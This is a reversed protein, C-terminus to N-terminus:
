FGVGEAYPLAAMAGINERAQAKQEETLEQAKDFSVAGLEDLKYRYRTYTYGYSNTEDVLIEYVNVIGDATICSMYTYADGTYVHMLLNDIIITSNSGPFPKFYGYLIYIGTELDRLCVKDTKDSEVFKVPHDTGGEELAKFRAEWDAFIDPYKKPLEDGNNNRKQVTIGNYDLTGWRYVVEGDKTCKFEISFSLSGAFFTVPDRIMWTFVATDEDDPMKQFDSVEYVGKNEEKTTLDTNTYHILVKDCLLLDHNEVMRPVDFSFVESNHDHQVLILKKSSKNKIVRTIPDISFHPDADFVSHEHAM